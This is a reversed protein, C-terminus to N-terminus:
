SVWYQIEQFSICLSVGFLGKHKKVLVVRHKRDLFEYHYELYGSLKWVLVVTNGSWFCKTISWIDM